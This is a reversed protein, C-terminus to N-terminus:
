QYFREDAISAYNVELATYVPHFGYVANDDSIDFHYRWSSLDLVEDEFTYDFSLAQPAGGNYYAAASAPTPLAVGPGIQTGSESGALQFKYLTLTIQSLGFVTTPLAPLFFYLKVLGFVAGDHPKVLPLTFSDSGAVYQSQIGGSAPDTAYQQHQSPYSSRGYESCPILVKRGRPATYLPYDGDGLLLNSGGLTAGAAAVNANAGTLTVSAHDTLNNPDQDLGITGTISDAGESDLGRDAVLEDMQALETARPVDLPGYGGPKVPPIM